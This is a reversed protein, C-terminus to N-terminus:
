SWAITMERRRSFSFPASARWRRHHDRAMLPMMRNLKREVLDPSIIGRHQSLSRQYNLPCSNAQYFYNWFGKVPKFDLTALKADFGLKALQAVLRAQGERGELPSRFPRCRVALERARVEYRDPTRSMPRQQGM